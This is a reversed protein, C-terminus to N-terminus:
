ILFTTAVFFISKCVILDILDMSQHERQWPPAMQCSIDLWEENMKQIEVDVDILECARLHVKMRNKAINLIRYYNESNLLQYGKEIHIETLHKSAHLVEFVDSITNVEVFNFVRLSPINKILNVATKKECNPFSIKKLRNLRAVTATRGNYYNLNM